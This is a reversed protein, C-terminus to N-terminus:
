ARRRNTGCVTGAPGARSKIREPMDEFFSTIGLDLIKRFQYPRNGGKGGKYMQKITLEIAKGLNGQKICALHSLM